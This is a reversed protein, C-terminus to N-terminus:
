DEVSIQFEEVNGLDSRRDRIARLLSEGVGRDNCRSASAAGSTSCVGLAREDIMKSCTTLIQVGTSRFYYPDGFSKDLDMLLNRISSTAEENGDVEQEITVSNIVLGGPGSNMKGLHKICLLTSSILSNIHRTIQDEWDEDGCRISKHNIILDLKKKVGKVVNAYVGEMQSLNGADATLVTLREDDGVADRLRTSETCVVTLAKVSQEHILFNVLAIGQETPEACLLIEKSKLLEM